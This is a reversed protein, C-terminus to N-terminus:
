CAKAIATACGLVAQAYLGIACDVFGVARDAEDERAVHHRRVNTAAQGLDLVVQEFQAPLEAYRSVACHTCFKDITKFSVEVAEVIGRRFSNM